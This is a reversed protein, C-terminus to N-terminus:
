HCRYCFVNFLSSHDMGINNQPGCSPLEVKSPDKFLGHIWLDREHMWTSEQISKEM